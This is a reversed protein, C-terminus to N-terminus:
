ARPAPRTRRTSRRGARSARRSTSCRCRISRTSGPPSAAPRLHRAPHHDRGAAPLALGAALILAAALRRVAGGGGDALRHGFGGAPPRGAGRGARRGADGGAPAGPWAAVDDLTLGTALAAGIRRARSQQRDLDYIEAARMQVKLRALQAPDPGEEVFDAILADLRAEAEALGVGPKPAVYLRLEAPRRRHRFLGGRRRARDRRRDRARAGHGLHGGVRRSARGARDAGRSGGPRRGQARARPLQRVVYPERVRPDQMMIRRAAVPKPEQPRARPAIAPSAPIPGFHAAALRECRPRARRRGGGGPDRQQARLARPLLGHAAARTFGAIEHEWGIVPRGYPRNVYLAADMQEAFPGDPANGVRQRREEAVVDRESRVAAEGPDLGTMRDAEMAMVLDLRDAAIRQHYATYDPTTFANDEGGNAAVLRSFEGDTLRGTAKFMLHELFHALGSQGAPDDAAGVKYWVMHTVVPARHDEIVVGMLGNPLTFSTIGEPAAAPLAAPILLCAMAGPLGTLFARM